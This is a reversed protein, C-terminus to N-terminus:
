NDLYWKFLKFSFFTDKNKVYIVQFFTFSPCFSRDKWELEVYNNCLLLVRAYVQEEYQVMLNM